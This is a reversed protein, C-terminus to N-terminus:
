KLFSVVENVIKQEFGSYNHKAGEFVKGTFRPCKTAERRIIDNSKFPDTVIGDDKTGFLSLIPIDLRKIVNFGLEPNNYNFIATKAGKGYFNLYTKASLKYCDWLVYPLIEDEKGMTELQLSEKVSKEHNSLDKSNLVLGLMDSASIFILGRVKDDKKESQYYAIKSCGLSHGQLYINKYGRAILFNLWGDIDNICEEFTEYANGVLSFSDDTKYFFRMIESGRTEVTLFAIKNRPYESLMTKIFGNEWFNGAMGHIHLIITDTKSKPESLLGQLILSDSTTTKVFDM